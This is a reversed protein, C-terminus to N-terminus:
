RVRLLTLGDSIPLMVRDFREDKAVRDNFSRIARTSEDDVDQDVVSGGWLVNDVLIVGGPRVLGHLRELYDAYETKVADVFALDFPLREIRENGSAGGAVLRDLTELAPAIRLDIKDAVGAQEWFPKGIATWEESVDCCVLEGDDSLGRAICLASYGTFTGIEIARRAGILRTLITLFAGQEPAIQMRAIDGLAKTTEILGSQIRDPPSGHEVLYRHLDPTLGLSKIADDPQSM